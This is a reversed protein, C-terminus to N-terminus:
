KDVSFHKRYEQPTFGTSKKFFRCFNTFSYDGTRECIDQIKLETHLLLHKAAALRKIGIYESLSYHYSEKFIRSLYTPNFHVVKSIRTLSLDGSLNEEIYHDIKARLLGLETENDESQLTFIAEAVKRLYAVAAPWDPHDACNSLAATGVHFAIRQSLQRKSIHSLLMESFKMYYEQAKPNNKSRVNALPRIYEDFSRLFAERRNQELAISLTELQRPSIECEMNGATGELVLNEDQDIGMIKGSLGSTLLLQTRLRSIDSLCSNKTSQRRNFLFNIPLLLQEQTETQIAELIGPLRLLFHSPQDSQLVWILTCWDKYTFVMRAIGAMFKESLERLLFCNHLFDLYTPPPNTINGLLLYFPESFNIPLPEAWSNDAPTGELVARVIDMQYLTQMNQSTELPNPAKKSAEIEQLVTEVTQLVQDPGETKLLYRVGHRSAEYLPEFDSYGTLFIFQSDPWRQNVERMLELGNMEPMKIDSVILEARVTDLLDLAELASFCRFVEVEESLELSLMDAIGNTIIPEDDVVLIRYM